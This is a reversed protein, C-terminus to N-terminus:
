DRPARGSEARIRTIVPRYNITEVHIEYFFPQPREPENLVWTSQVGEVFVVGKSRTILRQADFGVKMRSDTMRILDDEISGIVQNRIRASLLPSIAETVFRVNESNVNGVAEAVVWAFQEQYQAGIKNPTLQAAEALNFPEIVVVTETRLNMVVLVLVALSLMINSLRNFSVERKWGSWSKNLYKIDM